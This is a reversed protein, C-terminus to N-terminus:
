SADRRWNEHWRKRSVTTWKNDKVGGWSNHSFDLSFRDTKIRIAGYGPIPQPTDGGDPPPPPVVMSSAFWDTVTQYCYSQWGPPRRLM